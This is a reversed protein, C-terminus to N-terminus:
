WNKAERLYIRRIREAVEPMPQGDTLVGIGANKYDKERAALLERIREIPNETKLLPRSGSRTRSFITEPTAFLTIVIGRSRLKEGMGASTLIGGGTAIVAGFEPLWEDACRQELARFAAEGEQAFIEKIAKGTRKEIESDTDFFQLHLTRALLRGVTTKGTGMFGTLILNPPKSVTKEERM